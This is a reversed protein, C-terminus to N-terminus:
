IYAYILRIYHYNFKNLITMRIYSHLTAAVASINHRNTEAVIYAYIHQM